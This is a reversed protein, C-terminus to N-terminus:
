SLATPRALLKVGRPRRDCFPWLGPLDDGAKLGVLVFLINNSGLLLSFFLEQWIDVQNGYELVATLSGTYRAPPTRSMHGPIRYSTSLLHQRM